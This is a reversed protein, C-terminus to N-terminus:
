VKEWNKQEQLRKEYQQEIEQEVWDEDLDEEDEFMETINELIEEKSYFGSKVFLAIQDRIEVKTSDTQSDSNTSNMENPKSSTCFLFLQFVIVSLIYRMLTHLM